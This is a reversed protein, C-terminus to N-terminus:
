NPPLFCCSVPRIPNQNAPRQLGCVLSGAGWCLHKAGLGPIGLALEARKGQAWGM